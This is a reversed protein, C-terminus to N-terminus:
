GKARDMLWLLNGSAPLLRSAPPTGDGRRLRDVIERKREGSVLVVVSAANNIVPLTLTVRWQNSQPHQAAVALRSKEELAASGPFLSAVHGDTGLGLLILDFAPLGSKFHDKLEAEYTEAAVVPDHEGLIRHVNGEPIPVDDIFARRAMDYNSESHDPPVCREDGWFLHVHGWNIQRRFGESALLQYTAKPTEGGALAVSFRRSTDSASQALEAFQRAAAEALAAADPFVSVTGHM